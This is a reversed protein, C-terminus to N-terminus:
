VCISGPRFGVIKPRAREAAIRGRRRPGRRADDLHREVVRAEAVATDVGRRPNRRSHGEPVVPRSRFVARPDRNSYEGPARSDIESEAFCGELDRRDPAGPERLSPMPKKWAVPWASEVNAHPGRPEGLSPSRRMHLTLVSWRAERVGACRRASAARRRSWRDLRELRRAPSGTKWDTIWISALSASVASAHCAAENNEWILEAPDRALDDSCWGRSEHKPRSPAVRESV